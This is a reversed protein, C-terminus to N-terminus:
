NYFRNESYETYENLYNLVENEIKERNKNVEDISIRFVKWGKNILDNNRKIDHKITNEYTYHWSGDLEIDLQLDVFAYDLFYPYVSYNYIINYKSYLDNKLLFENFWEELYTKKSKDFAGHQGPHEILYKVRGKRIKEKTEDTHQKGTFSGILEGTKYKEKVVQIGKYCIELLKDKPLNKFNYPNNSKDRKIQVEQGTQEKHILCHSFHANLSQHNNFEKGCECRYLNDSIKYISKRKDKKVYNKCHTYHSYLSNLKDFEKGCYECKFKM